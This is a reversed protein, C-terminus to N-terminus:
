KMLVMKKVAIFDGAEIKYFYVGSALNNGNFKAEYYGPQKMENVLTAVEKGILDYIKITVKMEKPIDYKITTVPNFPNPYNQKLESQNPLYKSIPNVSMLQTYKITVMSNYSFGSILISNTKDILISTACDGKNFPDNYDIIWQQLGNANYKITTCDFDTNNSLTRGTIYVNGISDCTIANAEDYDNGTGNYRQVWQQIGSSNYKITAYDWNTGSGLSRGTVYVNGQNDPVLDNSYDSSFNTGLYNYDAKWQQIGSSNYKITVFDNRTGIQEWGTIYSNGYNDTKVKKLNGMVGINAWQQIGSSNYKITLINYSSGIEGCVFINGNNDLAISNAIDDYHQPDDYRKVWLSDGNSNYKITAIDFGTGNGTSYGTVYINGSNDIDIDEADNKSGTGTNYRAVWQQVGNPNYKITCYDDSGFGSRESYGTVYINGQSDVGISTPTNIGNSTPIGDYIAVWQQTGSTNYKITCWDTRGSTLHISGTVIVNQATDIAMASSSGPLSDYTRVWVQQVPQAFMVREGILTFFLFLTFLSYFIKTKM